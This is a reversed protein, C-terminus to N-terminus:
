RLAFHSVILAARERTRARPSCTKRTTFHEHPKVFTRYRPSIFFVVRTSVM